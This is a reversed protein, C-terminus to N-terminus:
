HRCVDLPQDREFLRVVVLVVVVVQHLVRAVRAAFASALPLDLQVRVAVAGSSVLPLDQFFELVALHLAPPGLARRRSPKEKCGGSGHKCTFVRDDACCKSQVVVFARNHKCSLASGSSARFLTVNPM